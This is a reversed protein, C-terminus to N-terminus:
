GGMLVGIIYVEGYLRLTQGEKGISAGGEGDTVIVDELDMISGEAATLREDLQELQQTNEQVQKELAGVNMELTGIQATLANLRNIANSMDETVLTLQEVLDATTEIKLDELANSNWNKENLNNLQYKLGEALMYMYDLVKPMLETMREKGTYSPFSSDILTWTSPM